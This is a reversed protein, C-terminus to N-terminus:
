NKTVFRTVTGHRFFTNKEPDFVAEIERDLPCVWTTDNRYLIKPVRLFEKAQRKNRVEEIQM